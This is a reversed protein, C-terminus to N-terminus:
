PPPLRPRWGGRSSEVDIVRDPEGVDNDAASARIEAVEVKLEAELDAAEKRQRKRAKIAADLVIFEDYMDECLDLKSANPDTMAAPQAVYWLTYTGPAQAAPRVELVDGFIRYARDFMAFREAWVFRPVQDYGDASSSAQRDLSMAKWFDTVSVSLGYTYSSSSLTFTNSKLFMQPCVAVLLRRLRKRGANIYGYWVATGVNTDSEMNARAQARTVLNGLTEPM